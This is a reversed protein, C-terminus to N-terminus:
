NKGMFVVCRIISNLDGKKGRKLLSASSLPIPSALLIFSKYGSKPSNSYNAM